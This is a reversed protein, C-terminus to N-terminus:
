GVRVPELGMGSLRELCVAVYDPAIEMGYGVRGTQECAVLTTGSGVFPDFWGDNEDSYANIFFEPLGPPFAGSHNSTETIQKTKITNGPYARGQGTKLKPANGTGQYNVAYSLTYDNNVIATDSMYSVNDPIFKYPLGRVFQYIPEFQNKFKGMLKPDGPIGVRLWSYEDIFEWGWKRCMALVLDFVYLVRRYDKSHPKINVFFSGDERLSSRVNTQIGDWWEVYEDMPIGGYQDKRQMAYPPSTFVGQARVGDMLREVDDGCTSDGCMIRHKGVQWVDGREVQWKENLEAARDVQGGPDAVAEDGNLSVGARERISKLLKQRAGKIRNFKEHLAKVKAKNITAMASLPDHTALLERAEDETLDTMVVPLMEDPHQDARLHGDILMIDGNPLTFALLSGAFGVGEIMANFANKQEDGHERWNDPHPLIDGARMFKMDVVRMKLDSM